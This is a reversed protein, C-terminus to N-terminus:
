FKKVLLEGMIEGHLTKAFELNQNNRALEMLSNKELAHESTIVSAHQTSYIRDFIDSNGGFELSDMIKMSIGIWKKQKKKGIM